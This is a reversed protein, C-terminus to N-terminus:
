VARLDSHDRLRHCSAKQLNQFVTLYIEKFIAEAEIERDGGESIGVVCIKLRKMIIM